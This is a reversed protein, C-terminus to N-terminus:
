VLLFLFITHALNKYNITSLNYSELANYLISFFKFRLRITFWASQGDRKQRIRKELVRSTMIIAMKSEHWDNNNYIPWGDDRTIQVGRLNLLDAEIRENCKINKIPSYSLLQAINWSISLVATDNRIYDQCNSKDNQWGERSRTGGRTEM